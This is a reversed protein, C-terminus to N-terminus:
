YSVENGNEIANIADKIMQEVESKTVDSEGNSSETTTTGATQTSNQSSYARTTERIIDLLDQRVQKLLEITVAQDKVEAM